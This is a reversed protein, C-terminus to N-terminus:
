KLPEPNDINVIKDIPVFTKVMVEAQHKKFNPDDKKVFRQKVAQMDVRKLYNLGPGFSCGNDTANINSFMTSQLEAVDTKIKLLVLNYGKQKLGFKMPHDECFSLRVYDELKYRQDLNRSTDGGGPFPIDINNKVCYDWSYLGGNRKISDLNSRHTFHYFYIIGNEQLYTRIVEKRQQEEREKRAREEAERKRRQEAEIVERKRREADERDRREKEILANVHAHTDRLAREYEEQRKKEQAAKIRAEVAKAEAEEKAKRTAETAELKRKTKERKKKQEEDILLQKPSKSPSPSVNYKEYVTDPILILAANSKRLNAGEKIKKWEEPTYIEKRKVKESRLRRVKALGNPYKQQILNLKYNIERDRDAKEEKIREKEAKIQEERDKFWFESNALLTDIQTKTLKLGLTQVGLLEKTAEPYLITWMKAKTAREQERKEKQEQKSNKAKQQENLKRQLDRKPVLEKTVYVLFPESHVLLKNKQDQTLNYKAGVLYEVAEPYKACWQAVKAEPDSDNNAKQQQRALEEKQRQRELEAQQRQLEEQQRKREALLEQQKTQWSYANIEARRQLEHQSLSYLNKPSGFWAKYADPYKDSMRRLHQIHNNRKKQAQEETYAEILHSMVWGFLGFGIFVLLVFM